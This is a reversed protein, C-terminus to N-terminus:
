VDDGAAALMLEEYWRARRTRLVDAYEQIRVRLPDSLDERALLEDSLRIARYFNGAQAWCSAASFAHVISKEMLGKSKALESLHEEIAAAEAFRSAAGEWQQQERLLQGELILKSKRAEDAEFSADLGQRSITHASPQRM